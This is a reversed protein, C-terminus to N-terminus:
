QYIHLFTDDFLKYPFPYARDFISNQSVGFVHLEIWDLKSCKELELSFLKVSYGPSFLPIVSLTVLCNITRLVTTASSSCFLIADFVVM